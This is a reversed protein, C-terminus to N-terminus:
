TFTEALRGELHCTFYKGSLSALMRVFISCSHTSIDRAVHVLFRKSVRPGSSYTCVTGCM